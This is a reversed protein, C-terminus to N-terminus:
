TETQVVGDRKGRYSKFVTKSIMWKGHYSRWVDEEDAVVDVSHTKGDATVLVAHLSAQFSVHVTGSALDFKDIRDTLRMVIAKGALAAFSKIVAQRDNPKGKLPISVYDPALVADLGAGQKSNFAAELDAYKHRIAQKVAGDSPRGLLFPLFFSVAM